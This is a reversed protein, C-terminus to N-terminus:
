HNSAQQERPRDWDRTQLEGEIYVQRGKALYEGCLEALKDWVVIRHWETREQRQGQKDTWNKSTAISFSAVAKGNPHTVFKLTADRSARRSNSQQYWGHQQEKNILQKTTRRTGLKRGYQPSM